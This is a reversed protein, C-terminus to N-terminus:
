KVWLIFDPYVSTFGPFQPKAVAGIYGQHVLIAYSAVADSDFSGFPDPLIAHIHNVAEPGGALFQFNGEGLPGIVLPQDRTIRYVRDTTSRAHSYVKDTKLLLFDIGLYAM